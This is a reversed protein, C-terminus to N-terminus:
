LPTSTYAGAKMRVWVLHVTDHQLGTWGKPGDNVEWRTGGRSNGISDGVNWGKSDYKGGPKGQNESGVGKISWHQQGASYFPFNWFGGNRTRFSSSASGAPRCRGRRSGFFFRLTFLSRSSFATACCALSSGECKM